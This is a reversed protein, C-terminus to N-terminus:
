LMTNKRLFSIRISRGVFGDIMKSVAVAAMSRVDTDNLRIIIDGLQLGAAAMSYCPKRIIMPGLHSTELFNYSPGKPLCKGTIKEISYWKLQSSPMPNTNYLRPPPM